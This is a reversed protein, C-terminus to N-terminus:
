KPGLGVMQVAAWVVLTLVVTLTLLQGASRTAMWVWFRSRSTFSWFLVILVILIFIM